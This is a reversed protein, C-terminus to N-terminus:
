EKRKLFAFYKKQIVDLQMENGQSDKLLPINFNGMDDFDKGITFLLKKEEGTKESFFPVFFSMVQSNAPFFNYFLNCQDIVIAPCNYLLIKAQPASSIWKVWERVGLSNIFGIEEFYINIEKEQDIQYISFDTMEDIPGDIYIRSGTIDNEKRIKAM